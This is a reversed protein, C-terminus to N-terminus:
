SEEKDEQTQAASLKEELAYEMLVLILVYIHTRKLKVTLYAELAYEMLVLILVCWRRPMKLTPVCDELAYEMLVLILVKYGVTEGNNDTISRSCIGNFCPNLSKGTKRRRWRHMVDELAYEM